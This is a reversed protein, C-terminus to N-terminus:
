RDSTLCACRESALEEYLKEFRNVMQTLSFKEKIRRPGAASMRSRLKTDDMLLAIKDALAQPDAPPVLFGTEGEAVQDCSGGINTAIVPVGMAMAEMVVGGFPEPQASPLVFLDLAPYVTRTDKIEGTFVVRDALGLERVLQQLQELHNESGPAPSGVIVFKARRGRQALLAAARILVEQGKRVLKIRGVCGVVFENELKWKRRFELALADRPVAFEDLSFGNHFVLVKERRPFQAAIAESVALVCRSCGTIYRAYWPWFRRFEQFWDRVHWVHPVGGLRAALAPSLIVGTNTHVLDIKCRRILRWLYTVSLPFQGFLWILRWSHFVQRNIVSLGPHIVVEIQRAEILPRLPGDEPLVVLPSFKARDLAGLLRLLSRSAGYIDASNHVYLIRLPAVSNRM